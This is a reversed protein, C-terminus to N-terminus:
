DVFVGCGGLEPRVIGAPLLEGLTPAGHVSTFDRNDGGKFRREKIPWGYSGEVCPFCNPPVGLLSAVRHLEVHVVKM